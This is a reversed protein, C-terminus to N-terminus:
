MVVPELIILISARRAELYIPFSAKAEDWKLPASAGSGNSFVGVLGQM